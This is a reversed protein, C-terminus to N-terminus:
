RTRTACTSRRQTERLYLLAFAFHFCLAIMGVMNLTGLMHGEILHCLINM